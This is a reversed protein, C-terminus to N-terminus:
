ARHWPLFFWNGHPCFNFHIEAQANWNRPDTAPLAKMAAVAARYTTIVPDSPSLTALDRRMPRNRIQELISECGGLAFAGTGLTLGAITLKSLAALVTRRSYDLEFSTTNQMHQGRTM